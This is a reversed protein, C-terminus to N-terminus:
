ISKSRNEGFTVPNPRNKWFGTPDSPASKKTEASKKFVPKCAVLEQVLQARSVNGRRSDRGGNTKMNQDKKIMNQSIFEIMKKDFRIM